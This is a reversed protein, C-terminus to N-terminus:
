KLFIEGKKKEIKYRASIQLVSLIEELTEKETFNANFTQGKLNENEIHIKVHFARQLEQMIDELSNDKFEFIGTVWSITNEPRITSIKLDNDSKFYVAQEGPQLIRDATQSQNTSKYLGIKGTLLTIQTKDPEADVNFTTGLVKIGVGDTQVIFPRKEDKRVEFFAEGKIEVQRIQQSFERPYRLCANANLWVVSSDPLTIKTKADPVATTEYYVLARKPEKDILFISTVVLLAISAAISLYKWASNGRDAYSIVVPRKVRDALRDFMQKEDFPLSKFHIRKTLSELEKNNQENKM